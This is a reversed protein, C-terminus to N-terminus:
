NFNFSERRNSSTHTTGVSVTETLHFLKAVGEICKPKINKWYNQSQGWETQPFTQRKNEQM